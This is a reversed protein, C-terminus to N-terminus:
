QRGRPTQENATRRSHCSWCMARLNADAHTQEISWGLRQCDRMRVIHDVHTAPKGCECCTPHTALFARRRAHWATDYGRQHSNPRGGESDKRHLDCYGRYMSPRPCNGHQCATKPM